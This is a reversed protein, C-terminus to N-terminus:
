DLEWFEFIEKKNFCEQLIGNDDAKEDSFRPLIEVMNWRGDICGLKEFEQLIITIPIRFASPKLMNKM